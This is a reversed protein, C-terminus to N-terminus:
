GHSVFAVCPKNSFPDDLVGANVVSAHVSCDPRVTAVVALSEKAVLRRVHDLDNSM